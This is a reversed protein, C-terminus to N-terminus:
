KLSCETMSVCRVGAGGYLRGGLMKLLTLLVVCGSEDVRIRKSMGLVAGNSWFEARSASVFYMLFFGAFSLKARQTSSLEKCRTRPKVASSFSNSSAMFSLRALGLAESIDWSSVELRFNMLVAVWFSSLGASIVRANAM